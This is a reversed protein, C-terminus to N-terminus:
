AFLMGDCKKGVFLWWSRVIVMGEAKELGAQCGTRM